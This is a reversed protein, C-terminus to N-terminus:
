PHGLLSPSPSPAPDALFVTGSGRLRLRRRLLQRRATGSRGSAAISAPQPPFPPTVEITAVSRPPAPVTTAPADGSALPRPTRRAGTGCGPRHPSGLDSM